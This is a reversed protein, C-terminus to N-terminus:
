DSRDNALGFIRRYAADVGLHLHPTPRALVILALSLSKRM